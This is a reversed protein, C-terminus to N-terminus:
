STKLEAIEFVIQLRTNTADYGYNIQRMMELARLRQGPTTKLWYSKEDNTDTLNTISIVSRNVRYEEPLLSDM